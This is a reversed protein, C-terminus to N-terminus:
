RRGGHPQPVGLVPLTADPTPEGGGGTPQLPRPWNPPPWARPPVGPSAGAHLSPPVGTPRREPRRRVARHAVRRQPPAGPSAGALSPPRCALLAADQDGATPATPLAGTPRHGQRRPPRHVLAASSHPPARIAPPRHLPRRAPPSTGRAVRQRTFPPPVGTPRRVPRRRDARHAVRRDPAAGPSATAPSPPRCGLPAAGQDGAPLAIPSAGTPYHGQRGAPSPLPTACGHPPARTAPPRRPPRRAPPATGRAVRWRTFPPSM